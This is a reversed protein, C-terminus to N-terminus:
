SPQYQHYASGDAFQTSAILVRRPGGVQIAKVPRGSATGGGIDFVLERLSLGFPLEFLGGRKINGALQFPLTGRSRGTGFDKYFEAGKELITPVAAFTLVNNIVTPQGFLGQIAPLPPKARVIGRKGELSELM